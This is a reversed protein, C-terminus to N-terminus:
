QGRETGCLLNAPVSEKIKRPPPLKWSALENCFEAESMQLLKNTKLQEAITTVFRGNYDHGPYVLTDPPLQVLKKLSKYMEVSSGAQFDTRGCSDIFLTDGTLLRNGDILFTASDNTHGPTLFTQISIEGVKLVTQENIFLHECKVGTHALAIKAEPFRKLLIGNATIHDAHVHTELLYKLHLRQSEIKQIYLDAQEKVTDILAVERTQRDGVLFTYTSTEPDFLQEFM